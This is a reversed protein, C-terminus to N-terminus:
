AQIAADTAGFSARQARSQEAAEIGSADPCDHWLRVLLLSDHLRQGRSVSVSAIATGDSYCSMPNAIMPQTSRYAATSASQVMRVRQHHRGGRSSVSAYRACLHTCAPQVAAIVSPIRADPHVVHPDAPPQAYTHWAPVNSQLHSDDVPRTPLSLSGFALVRLTSRPFCAHVSACRPRTPLFGSAFPLVSCM